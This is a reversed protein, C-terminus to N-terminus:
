LLGENDFRIMIEQVRKHMAALTTLIEKGRVWEPEGFAIHFNFTMDDDVESIPFTGLKSGDKLPGTDLASGAISVKGPRDGFAARITANLEARKTRTITHSVMVGLIPVLVCHKDLKNIEHLMFLHVGNGIRTVASGDPRYYPEIGDIAKIASDTMGQIKRMKGSNYERATEFIPFYIDKDWAKPTVPSSKVLHWALHDLATRLNQAVDGILASFQLPLEKLVRLYYTREGTKLDDKFFTKYPGGEGLFRLFETNLDILHKYARDVKVLLSDLAKQNNAM